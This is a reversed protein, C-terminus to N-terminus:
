QPLKVILHDSEARSLPAVFFEMVRPDSNMASFADADGNQWPRLLIREGALTIQKM